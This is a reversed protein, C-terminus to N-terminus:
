VTSPKTRAPTANQASRVQPPKGVIALAKKHKKGREIDRLTLWPIGFHKATERRGHGAHRYRLMKVVDEDSYRGKATGHRVQDALNEESTGWRLNYLRNNNKDGDLHRCEMGTPRPGVFAELVLRHIKFKKSVGKHSLKIVWYGDKRHPRMLRRRNKVNGHNSVWYHVGYCLIKRWEEM